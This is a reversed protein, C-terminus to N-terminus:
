EAADKHDKDDAADFCHKLGPTVAIPGATASAVNAPLPLVVFVLEQYQGLDAEEDHAVTHPAVVCALDRAGEGRSREAVEVLRRLGRRQAFMAVALATSLALLILLGATTEALMYGRRPRM